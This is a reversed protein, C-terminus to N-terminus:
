SQPPQLRKRKREYIERLHQPENEFIMWLAHIEALRRKDAESPYRRAQGESFWHAVTSRSKGLLEALEAHTVDWYSLFEKPELTLADFLTCIRWHQRTPTKLAISM